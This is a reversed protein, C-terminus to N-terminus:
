VQDNKKRKKGQDKRRRREGMSVDPFSLQGKKGWAFGGPLTGKDSPTGEATEVGKNKVTDMWALLEHQYVMPPKGRGPCTIPGRNVTNMHKLGRWSSKPLGLAECISLGGRLLKRKSSTDNGSVTKSHRDPDQRALEIAERIAPLLKGLVDNHVVTSSDEFVNTRALDGPTISHLNRGVGAAVLVSIMENTDDLLQASLEDRRKAYFARRQAGGVGAQLLKYNELFNLATTRSGGRCGDPPEPLPLHRGQLMADNMQVVYDLLLAISQYHALQPLTIRAM